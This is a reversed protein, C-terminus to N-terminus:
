ETAGGKMRAEKERLVRNCIQSRRDMAGSEHSVGLGREDLRGIGYWERGDVPIGTVYTPLFACVWPDDSNHLEADTIPHECHIPNMPIRHVLNMPFLTFGTNVMVAPGPPAPKGAQYSKPGPDLVRGGAGIVFKDGLSRSEAIYKEIVDPKTFCLDDDM